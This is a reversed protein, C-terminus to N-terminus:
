RALYTLAGVCIVIITVVVLAVVLKLTRQGSSNDEPVSIHFLDNVARRYDSDIHLHELEDLMASGMFGDFCLQKQEADYWFRQKVEDPVRLDAPISNLPVSHIM